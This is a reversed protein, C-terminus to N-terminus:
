GDKRATPRRRLPSGGEDRGKLWRNDQARRRVGDMQPTLDPFASPVRSRDTEDDACAFGARPDRGRLSADLLQPARSHVVIEAARFYRHRREAVGAAVLYAAVLRV